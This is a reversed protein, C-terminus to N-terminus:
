CGYRGVYADHSLACYYVIIVSAYAHVMEDLGVVGERDSLVGTSSNDSGKQNVFRSTSIRLDQAM